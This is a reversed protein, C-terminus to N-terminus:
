IEFVRQREHVKGVSVADTLYLTEETPRRCGQPKDNKISNDSVILNFKSGVNDDHFDNQQKPHITITNISGHIHTSCQPDKTPYSRASLVSTTTNDNLKPNKITDSPLAGTM